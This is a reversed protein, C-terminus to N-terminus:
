SKYYHNVKKADEIIKDIKQVNETFTYDAPAAKEDKM